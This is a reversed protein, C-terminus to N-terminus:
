APREPGGPGTEGFWEADVTLAHRGALQDPLEEPTTGVKAALDEFNLKPWNATLADVRDAFATAARSLNRAFGIALEAADQRGALQVTIQSDGCMVVLSPHGQAHEVLSAEADEEPQVLVYFGM